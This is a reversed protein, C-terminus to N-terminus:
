LLTFTYLAKPLHRTCKVCSSVVYCIIPELWSFVRGILQGTFPPPPDRYPPPLRLLADDNSPSLNARACNSSRQPLQQPSFPPDTGNNPRIRGYPPEYRPYVLHLNADALSASGQSHETPLPPATYPKELQDFSSNHSSGGVGNEPAQKPVGRVVGVNLKREPVSCIMIKVNMKLLLNCQTSVNVHCVATM